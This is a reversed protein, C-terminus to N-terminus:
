WPKEGEQGTVRVRPRGEEVGDLMRQAQAATMAGDEAPEGQTAADGQQSADGPDGQQDGQQDLQSPSVTDDGQGESPDKSPQGDGQQQGPDGDKSQEGDQKEDQSGEQQDDQGQTQDQQSSDDSPKPEQDSAQQPSGGGHGSQQQQQQQEQQKQRRAALEQTVLDQNQKAREHNPRAQLVQDYLQLSRELRGARYHANAANYEAEASDGGVLRAQTEYARAAGDFDGARYRAAGLRGYLGADSPSEAVLEQFLQKALAYDGSRYAADAGALDQASAPPSVSLGFTLAAIALGGRLRSRGEGLWAAVLWCGLGFGLPWPFSTNWVERQLTGTVADDVTGRLQGILVRMDENSAVSQAYAGGTIRAVERLVDASPVSIVTQGEFQMWTGDRQPIPAGEVGVGMAEVVVGAERAERAAALADDARHVEGDSLVLIAKGASQNATSLLKLAERIAAGLESGQAQFTRTDLERALLRLADHDNTLPMRPFAGGAYVVLGVRDGQLLDILDYIERRARELRSPDVDRADMSQSLDVVLVLDVGRQEIEVIRKGFRPEALAIVFAFLGLVALVDRAVRRLRVSRPLVRELLDGRLRAALRNYHNRAGWVAAGAALAVLLSAWLWALEGWSM